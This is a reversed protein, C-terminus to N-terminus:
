EVTGTVKLATLAKSALTSSICCALPCLQSEVAVWNGLGATSLRRGGVLHIRRETKNRPEVRKGVLPKM